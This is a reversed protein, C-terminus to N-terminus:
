LGLNFFKKDNISLSYIAQQDADQTTFFITQGEPDTFLKNCNQTLIQQLYRGEQEKLEIATLGNDQCYFALTQAFNLAANKIPTSTRTILHHNKEKANYIWIEFENWLLLESLDDSWVFDKVGFPLEIMEQGIISYLKNNTKNLVLLNNPNKIDLLYQSSKPLSILEQQDALNDLPASYLIAFNASDEIFFLKEGNDVIAQISRNIVRKRSRDNLNLRYVSQDALCYIINNNQQSISLTQCNELLSNKIEQTEQTTINLFFAQYILDNKFSLLGQNSDSSWQVQPRALQDQVFVPLYSKSQSSGKLINIGAPSSFYALYEKDGSQAFGSLDGQEILLPSSKKILTINDLYKASAPTITVSKTWPWYEDKTILLEYKQPKLNKIMIPTKTAILKQDLYINSNKPVVTISLAGTKYIKHSPWDYRYGISYLILFAATILFLVIVISYYVRRFALQM